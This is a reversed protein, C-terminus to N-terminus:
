LLLRCVLNCPSQLESTHEESRVDSNPISTPRDIEVLLRKTGFHKADMITGFSLDHVSSELDAIGHEHQVILKRFPTRQTRRGCPGAAHDNMHIQFIHVGRELTHNRGARGYLHREAIREPAVAVAGDHIRESM